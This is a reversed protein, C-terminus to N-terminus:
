SNKGLGCRPEGDLGFSRPDPCPSPNEFQKLFAKARDTMTTVPKM